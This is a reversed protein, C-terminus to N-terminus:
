ERYIAKPLAWQRPVDIQECGSQCGVAIRPDVAPDLEAQDPMEVPPKFLVIERGRLDVLFYDLTIPM